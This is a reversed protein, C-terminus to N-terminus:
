RVEIKLENTQRGHVSLSVFYTGSKLGSGQYCSCDSVIETVELHRTLKDNPKIDVYQFDDKTFITSWLFYQSSYKCLSKEKDDKITATICTPYPLKKHYKHAETFEITQMSDTPNRITLTVNIPQGATYSSNQFIEIELKEITRIQGVTLKTGLFLVLFIHGLRKM